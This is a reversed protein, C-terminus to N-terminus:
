EIWENKQIGCRVSDGVVADVVVVDGPIESGAGCRAELRRLATLLGPLGQCVNEVRALHSWPNVNLYLSSM